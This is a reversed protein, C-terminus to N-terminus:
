RVQLHLGGTTYFDDCGTPGLARNPCYILAQFYWDGGSSSSLRGPLSYAGSADLHFPIPDSVAHGVLGVAGNSLPIQAPSKGLYLFGRPQNVWGGSVHVAVSGNPTPFGSGWITPEIGYPGPFGKGYAAFHGSASSDVVRYAIFDDLSWGGYAIADHNATLRFRIRVSDQNDAQASIDFDQCVWSRDQHKAGAPNEYVILQPLAGNDLVIRASDRTSADVVLWRWYQFHIGAQGTFDFQPSELESSGGPLYYGDRNGLGKIDTGWLKDGSFARRPDGHEEVVVSAWSPDRRDWEDHSGGDSTWGRDSLAEFDYAYLIEMQGVHFLRQNDDAHAPYTSTVGLCNTAELYWRVTNPAAIGPITAEFQAPQGTATMPVASFAAAGDPAYRLLPPNTSLDLSGARPRLLATVDTPLGSAVEGNMPPADIGSIDVGLEPWGYSQFGNTIETLHPTGDCLDGNNDDLCIWHDLIVNALQSDSFTNMWAIFLAPAVQVGSTSEIERKVAWLASALPQGGMHPDTHSCEWDVDVPCKKINTQLASRQVGLGDATLLDPDDRIYYSWADALGESFAKSLGSRYRLTAWHGMEHLIWDGYAANCASWDSCPNSPHKRLNITGGAYSGFGSACDASARNVNVLLQADLTGDTPDISKVWDHFANVWYFAATEAAQCADGPVDFPAPNNHPGAMPALVRYANEGASNNVAVWPGNLEFRLLVPVPFDLSYNGAADTQTIPTQPNNADYVNLSALAQEVRNSQTNPGNGIHVAGTVQGSVGSAYATSYVKFVTPDGAASVIARGVAPLGDKSLRGPASLDLIYALTPGARNLTSDYGFFGSPGVIALSIDDVRTFPVGIEDAFAPGVRALARETSSAPYLDALHAFPVGTTDLAIVDGSRRDFLVAVSANFVTIDHVVQVFSVAVKDSSDVQSLNLFKVRRLRLSGSDFGFLEVNNDVVQRAAAEFGAEDHPTFPLPFRRGYVFTPNGTVPDDVVRWGRGHRALFSEASTARPISIQADVGTLCALTTLLGTLASIAPHM